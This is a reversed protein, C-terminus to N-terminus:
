NKNQGYYADNGHKRNFHKDKLFGEITKINKDIMLSYTAIKAVEELTQAIDVAHTASKSSFTFPGHNKVLIGSVHLPDIKRSIFEEIIVKGTEKEYNGNIETATLSRACPISGYFNDAHTTGYCPIDKGAQAWSVGYPSHTHVIGKLSKFKNYLELHTPMDLSPNLKGEVINGNMDIVVIDEYIMKTYSIGSPKIAFYKGDKSKESVNGWTHIALKLNYLKLNADLVRKKLDKFM